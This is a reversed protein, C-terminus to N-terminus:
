KNRTLFEGEEQGEFDKQLSAIDNFLQEKRMEVQEKLVYFDEKDDEDLKDVQIKAIIGECM